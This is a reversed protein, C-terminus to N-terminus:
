SKQKAEALQLKLDEIMTVAQRLQETRDLVLKELDSVYRQRHEEPM